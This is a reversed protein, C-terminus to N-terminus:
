INYITRLTFLGGIDYRVCLLRCLQISLFLFNCEEALNSNQELAAKLSLLGIIYYYLGLENDAVKLGLHRNIERRALVPWGM